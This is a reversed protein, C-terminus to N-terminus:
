TSFFASGNQLIRDTKAIIHGQLNNLKRTNNFRNEVRKCNVHYRNESAWSKIELCGSIIDKPTGKFLKYQAFRRKDFIYVINQINNISTQPRFINM